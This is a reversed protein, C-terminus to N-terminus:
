TGVHVDGDPNPAGGILTVLRQKRRNWGAARATARALIDPRHQYRRRAWPSTPAAVRLAGVVGVLPMTVSLLALWPKGKAATAITLCLNAAVAALATWRASTEAQDTDTLGFPAASVALMGTVVVAVIVADISTRGERSWYVDQLHLLLAFEDLVLGAGIGFVLALLERWPAETRLAFGLTGAVMMALVGFFEHHVHVGGVSVNGPWWRVQARILRASTRIASFGGVMGALLFLIPQKGPAVIQEHYSGLAWSWDM